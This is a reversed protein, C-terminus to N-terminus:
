FIMKPYSIITNRSFQSSMIIEIVIVTMAVTGLMTVIVEDGGGDDMSSDM